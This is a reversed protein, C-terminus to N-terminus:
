FILAEQTVREGFTSYSYTYIYITLVLNQNTTVYMYNELKLRWVM